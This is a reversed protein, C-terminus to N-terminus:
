RRDTSTLVSRDDRERESEREEERRETEAGVINVAASVLPKVYDGFARVRSERM